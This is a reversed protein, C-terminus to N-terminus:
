AYWFYKRMKLLMLMLPGCEAKEESSALFYARYLNNYEVISIQELKIMDIIRNKM